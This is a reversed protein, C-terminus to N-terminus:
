DRGATGPVANCAPTNIRPRLIGLFVISAGAADALLDAFDPSRTPTMFQHLEDSAGYIFTVCFALLASKRFTYGQGKRFGAFLFVSLAGFLVCHIVKDANNFWWAPKEGMPQTSLFFIFGAWVAAPLWYIMRNM